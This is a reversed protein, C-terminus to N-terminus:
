SSAERAPHLALDRSMRRALALGSLFADEVTSGELWDGCTGLSAEPDWLFGNSLPRAPRALRWVHVSYLAVPPLRLGTQGAFADLMEEAVEESSARDLRERSWEPRAHLTWSESGRRGPKASDRVVRALVGTECTAEEFSADLPREFAVLLAHVPDFDVRAAARGLAPAGELLRVAQPAPTAVVVADVASSAEGDSFRLRRRGDSREVAVVERRTEIRVGTALDRILASMGPVGVYRWPSSRQESPRVGDDLVVRRPSWRALVRRAQWAWVQQSFEPSRCGFDPAGHDFVLQDTRRTSSRGGARRSKEYVTCAHGAENLRRAASLGALGAGVVAISCSM